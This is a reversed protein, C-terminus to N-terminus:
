VCWRSLGGAAPGLLLLVAVVHVVVDADVDDVVVVVLGVGFTPVVVLEGVYEVDELEVTVCVGV